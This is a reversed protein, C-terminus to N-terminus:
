KINLELYIDLNQLYNIVQEFLMGQVFIHQQGSKALQRSLCNFLISIQHSSFQVDGVMVRLLIDCFIRRTLTDIDYLFEENHFAMTLLNFFNQTNFYLLIRLNNYLLGGTRRLHLYSLFDVIENRRFHVMDYSLRGSFSYMDGVLITQIFVLAQNGILTMKTSYSTGNNGIFIDELKEIIEKLITTFDKFGKSYIHLLTMYVEYKRTIEIIQDLDLCSVNLRDLCQELQNLNNNDICYNIFDKLVTPLITDFRNTLIYPELSQLYIGHAISDKSFFEYIVGFLLNLSDILLYYDISRPLVNRYHQKLLNIKGSQPCENNLSYNLYAHLVSVM